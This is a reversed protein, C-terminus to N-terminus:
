AARFRGIANLHEDREEVTWGYFEFDQPKWGRTHSWVAKAIEMVPLSEYTWPGNEAPDWYGSNSDPHQADYSCNAFWYEVAESLGGSGNLGRRVVDRIHENSNSAFWNLFHAACQTAPNHVLMPPVCYEIKKGAKM